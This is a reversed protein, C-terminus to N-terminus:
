RLPRQIWSKSDKNIRYCNSSKKETPSLQLRECSSSVRGALYVKNPSKDTFNSHKSVQSHVLIFMQVGM